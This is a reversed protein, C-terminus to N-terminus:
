KVILIKSLREDMRANALENMLNLIIILNICEHLQM